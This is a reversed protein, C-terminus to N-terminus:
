HQLSEWFACQHVQEFDDVVRSGDPRLSMWSDREGGALAPWEPAGEASPRGTTVFAGWYDIMQDSLVRQEPTPPPAGGMDFIYRLDLSHSAGIPFPLRRLPDPTPPAPDDFEYGYVPANAVQADAIRDAVCAFAGDTVAASYALAAKGKYRDLPYHQAVADADAGFTGALLKPYGDAHFRKGARIYQLAVFLTFEDRTTGIMVPVRAAAGATIAQMPDVPLLTTGTVPGSLTNEGIGYYWVPKRLKDVPLRRLCDAAVAPDGCGAAGAYALSSRTAAPLAVQAQCPGSAIIAARFLGASAPAALHDCVSMGGASEGAITVKEPDGGFAAINDRVWHLAAQQDALGYNGVDPGNGLAPHALFGLAGLRYNVTVVVIDGRTTLRTSNYINSSGNIFGGGHIWVLVPRRQSSDRMPPTWVNLTLCDESTNRGMELDGQPDQMCRAGPKGADRVGDWAPAPVPPSFRLPGLPPAAYPIGGFFRLESHVAGRVTGATTHVLAPDSTAADPAAATAGDSHSDLGCGAVLLTAAAVAFARRLLRRSPAPLM